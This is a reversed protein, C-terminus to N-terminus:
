FPLSSSSPHSFPLSDFNLSFSPNYYRLEFYAWVFLLIKFFSTKSVRYSFIHSLLVETQSRLYCVFSELSHFQKGEFFSILNKFVFFESPRLDSILSHFLESRYAFYDSNSPCYNFNLSNDSTAFYIIYNLKEQLSYLSRVSRGRLSFDNGYVLISNLDFTLMITFILPNTNIYM